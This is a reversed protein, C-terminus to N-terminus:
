GDTPSGPGSTASLGPHVGPREPDSVRLRALLEMLQRREDTKLDGCLEDEIGFAVHFAKELLRQGSPTLTVVRARRDVPHPRRRVLRRRELEDVMSVMRNPHLNLSDGIARQSQGDSMALARLLGFQRPEIHLPKLEAALRASVAFGIRSVTFAVSPPVAPDQHSMANEGPVAILKYRGRVM